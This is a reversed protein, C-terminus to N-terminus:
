VTVVAFPRHGHIIVERACLCPKASWGTRYSAALIVALEMDQKTRRVFDILINQTDKTGYGLIINAKDISVVPYAGMSKALNVFKQLLKSQVIARTENGFFLRLNKWGQVFADAVAPFDKLIKGVAGIAM